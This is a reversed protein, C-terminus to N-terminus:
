VDGDGALAYSIRSGPSTRLSDSVSSAPAKPRVPPEASRVATYDVEAFSNERSLRGGFTGPAMPIAAFNSTGTPSSAANRGAIRTAARPSKSGYSSPSAYGTEGLAAGTEVDDFELQHRIASNLRNISGLRPEYTSASQYGEMRGLLMGGPAGSADEVQEGDEEEPAPSAGHLERSVLFASYGATARPSPKYNYLSLSSLIVSVSSMAMAAGAIWPPVIVEFVPFLAGAAVPIAVINYLLAWFLNRKICKVIERSLDIAVAVSSLDTKMLVMDASEMAVDTGGGMAIGVDAQVLAPADNIGDGVFAVIKGREQLWKVHQIKTSPLAEAVLNHSPIGVMRAVSKASALRDGTVMWCELGSSQLSKVTALAEERPPDSLEILGELSGSVAVYVSTSGNNDAEISYQAVNGHWVNNIGSDRMFELNGVLVEVSDVTCKIGRGSTAVFNTPQSLAPLSTITGAYQVISRGIIHESNLEACAAYWVVVDSRNLRVFKPSQLAHPVSAEIAPAPAAAPKPKSFSLSRYRHLNQSMTSVASDFSGAAIDEAADSVGLDSKARPKGSQPVSVAGAKLSDANQLSPPEASHVGLTVVRTVKPYGITLTGTKDFLITDVKYATELTEGGKILVGLRAGVGTGM